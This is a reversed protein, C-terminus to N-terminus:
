QDQQQENTTTTTNTHPKRNNFPRRRDNSRYPRKIQQNGYKQELQAAGEPTPNKFQAVMKDIYDSTKINHKKMLELARDVSASDQLMLAKRILPVLTRKTPTINFKTQQQELFDFAAALSNSSLATQILNVFTDEDPVLGKETMETFLSTAGNLQRKSNCALILCNYTQTNPELGLKSIEAFTSFARDIDRANACAYIILNVMAIDLKENAEKMDVLVYYCQDIEEANPNLAEHMVKISPLPINNQVMQSITRFASLFQKGTAYANLMAIYSTAKHKVDNNQMTIWLEEALKYEGQM